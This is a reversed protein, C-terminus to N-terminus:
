GSASARRLRLPRSPHPSVLNRDYCGCWRTSPSWAADGARYASQDRGGGGRPDHALQSLAVVAQALADLDGKPKAAIAPWLPVLGRVEAIMERATAIDVPALRLARDRVIETLVGGAAVLVLPGVDRDIRYGILAEGLGTVM